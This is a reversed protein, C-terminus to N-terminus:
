QTQEDIIKVEYYDSQMESLARSILINKIKDFNFLIDLPNLNEDEKDVEDVEYDALWDNIQKSNLVFERRWVEDKDSLNYWDRIKKIKHANGLCKLNYICILPEETIVNQIVFPYDGIKNLSIRQNGIEIETCEEDLNYVTRTIEKLDIGISDITLTMSDINLFKLPFEGEKFLPALVELISSKKRGDSTLYEYSCTPSSTFVAKQEDTLYFKLIGFDEGYPTVFHANIIKVGDEFSDPERLIKFDRFEKTGHISINKVERLVEIPFHYSVVIQDINICYEHFILFDKYDYEMKAKM